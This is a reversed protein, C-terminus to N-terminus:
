LYFPYIKLILCWLSHGLGEQLLFLIVGFSIIRLFLCSFILWYYAKLFDVTSWPSLRFKEANMQRDGLAIYSSGILEEELSEMWVIRYLLREPQAEKFNM